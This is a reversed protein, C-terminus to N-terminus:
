FVTASGFGTEEFAIFRMSIERARLRGKDAAPTRGIGMVDLIPLVVALQMVASIFLFPPPGCVYLRHRNSLARARFVCSHWYDHIVIVPPKSAM